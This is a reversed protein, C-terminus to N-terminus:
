KLGGKGIFGAAAAGTVAGAIGKVIQIDAMKNLYISEIRSRDAEFEYANKAAEGEFKVAAMAKFYEDDSRQIDDVISKSSVSFGSSAGQSKLSGKTRQRQISLMQANKQGVRVAEDADADALSANLAQTSANNRLNDANSFSELLQSFAQTGINFIGLKEASSLSEDAKTNRGAM